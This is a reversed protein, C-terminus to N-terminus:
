GAPARVAELLGRIAGKEAPHSLVDAALERAGGADKEVARELRAMFAGVQAERAGQLLLVCLDDVVTVLDGEEARMQAAALSELGTPEVAKARLTVVCFFAHDPQEARDSVQQLFIEPSVRGDPHGSVTLQTEEEPSSRSDSQPRAGTSISQRIRLGLERFDIGGSLCDDAGAELISIRDTSRIQDDSAFVIAARSLPRIALCAQIAQRVAQRPSHILIGGYKTGSQVAAVAEFPESVVDADFASAAWAGLDSSHGDGLSVLLLRGEDIGGRDIGRRAPYSEPEVLGEGPKLELSISEDRGGPRPVARALKVQCLGDNRRELLLRGTTAQTLWDASSPLSIAGGDVTFTVLVTAPNRRAWSLFTTGLLTRAGGSLFMAGPDIAIRRLNPNAISALEEVVEEPAISRIARLEFDDKFGVIQLLGSEWADWLDFGWAGAVSLISDIEANTVLLSGEGRAVGEHVFQLAAVMKEPGPAGVVLYAGGEDLGGIREDFPAIGSSILDSAAPRRIEVDRASTGHQPPPTTSM